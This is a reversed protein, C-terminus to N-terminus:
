PRGGELARLRAGVVAASRSADRLTRHLIWTTVAAGVFPGAAALIILKTDVVGADIASSNWVLVVASTAAAAVDAAVSAAIGFLVAQVKSHAWYRGAHMSTAVLVGLGVAFGLGDM